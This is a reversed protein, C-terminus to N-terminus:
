AIATISLNPVHLQTSGAGDWYISGHLQGDNAGSSYDRAQMKLAKPTTWTSQRGTTTDASGGIPITWSFHILREPYQYGSDNFRAKTVEVGGIFFRFHMIAHGGTQWFRTFSFEYVVRTTGLPPTYTISSGTIDVSANAPNLSGTVNPFTYTGSTVTVTSGDCPGSLREAVEGPRYYYWNTGNYTAVLKTDTEYIMQGTIPTSPRTTSTVIEHGSGFLTM